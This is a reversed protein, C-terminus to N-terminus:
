GDSGMGDTSYAQLVGHYDDEDDAKVGEEESMSVPPGTAPVTKSECHSLKRGRRERPSPKRYLAYDSSQGEPRPTIPQRPEDDSADSWWQSNPEQLHSLGLSRKFRSRSPRTGLTSNNMSYEAHSMRPNWLDHHTASSIDNPAVNNRPVEDEVPPSSTRLTSTYRKDPHITSTPDSDHAASTETEWHPPVAPSMLPSRSLASSSPSNMHAGVRRRRIPVIRSTESDSLHSEGPQSTSSMSSPRSQTSDRTVRRSSLILPRPGGGFVNPSVPPSQPREQLGSGRVRWNSDPPNTKSSRTSTESDYGALLAGPSLIRADTPSRSLASPNSTPSSIASDQSSNSSYSTRWLSFQGFSKTGESSSEAFKFRKASDHHSGKWYNLAAAALNSRAKSLSAVADSSDLFQSLTVKPKTDGKLDKTQTSTVAVYGPFWPSKLLRGHVRNLTSPISLFPPDDSRTGSARGERQQKRTLWVVGQMISELGVVHVPYNQLIQIGEIFGEGMIGEPRPAEIPAEEAWLGGKYRNGAIILRNRIRLVMSTCIDILLTIRPANSLNSPPQSFLLDWLLIVHEFPLTRSFLSSIWGLAWYPLAPDLSKAHLEEWLGNDAWCLRESLRGLVGQVGNTDNLDGVLGIFSGLDGVMEGFAWFVDSEAQLANDYDVEHLALVFYLPALVFSMAQNYGRDPYLLAHFYLIRLLSDRYSNQPEDANEIAPPVSSVLPSDPLSLTIEPQVSNRQPGSKVKRISRVRCQIAAWHPQSIEQRGPPSSWSSSSPGSYTPFFAQLDMAAVDKEIGELLRDGLSLPYTPAGQVELDGIFRRAIGLYKLQSQEVSSTWKSKEPPLSGLLLRWVRPRLFPPHDPIRGASCLRRFEDINVTHPSTSPDLFSEIKNLRLAEESAEGM